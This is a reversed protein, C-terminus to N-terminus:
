KKVYIQWLHFCVGCLWIYIEVVQIGAFHDDDYDFLSFELVRKVQVVFLDNRKIYIQLLILCGVYGYVLFIIMMVFECDCLSFGLVRQKFCCFLDNRQHLTVFFSVLGCLLFDFVM